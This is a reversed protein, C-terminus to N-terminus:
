IILKRRLTGLTASVNIVRHDIYSHSINVDGIQPEYKIEYKPKMLRTIGNLLADNIIYKRDDEDSISIDRCVVIVEYTAVDYKLQIRIEDVDNEHWLDNIINSLTKLKM